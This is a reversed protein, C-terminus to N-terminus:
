KILINGWDEKERGQQNSIDSTGKSDKSGIARKMSDVLGGLFLACFLNEFPIFPDHVGFVYSSVNFYVFFVVISFYVVAYPATFYGYHQLIFVISAALSAKTASRQFFFM